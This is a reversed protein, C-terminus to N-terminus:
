RHSPKKDGQGRTKGVFEDHRYSPHDAYCLKCQHSFPCPDQSCKAGRNFNNCTGRQTHSNPRLASLSCGHAFHDGSGCIACSSKAQGTFKMLFLQIDREGWSLNPNTAAKRRFDIDYSLWAFGSFKRQASRIIEQYAFMEVARRPFSSLLITSFVEFASLWKDISDVYTKKKRTPSPIDLQKGEFSISVGPLDTNHISSNEPLLTDFEVYEGKLIAQRTKQSVHSALSPQLQPLHLDHAPQFTSSPQNLLRAVFNPDTLDRSQTPRSQAQQQQLPVSQQLHIPQLPQFNKLKEDLITSILAALAAPNPVLNQQDPPVGRAQGGDQTDEPRVHTNDESTEHQGTQDTNNNDEVIAIPPNHIVATTERNARTRKSLPEDPDRQSAALAEPSITAIREMLQERNGTTALNNQALLLRLVENSLGESEM